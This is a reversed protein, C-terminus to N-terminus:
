PVNFACPNTIVRANPTLMSIPQETLLQKGSRTSSGFQTIPCSDGDVMRVATSACSWVAYERWNPDSSDTRIDIEGTTLAVDRHLEVHQSSVERSRM